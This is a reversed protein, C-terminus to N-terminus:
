RESGENCALTYLEDMTIQHSGNVDVLWQIITERLDKLSGSNKIYYDPEVDFGADILVSKLLEREFCGCM